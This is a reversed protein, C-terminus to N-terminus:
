RYSDFEEELEATVWNSVNHFGSSSIKTNPLQDSLHARMMNINVTDCVACTIIFVV